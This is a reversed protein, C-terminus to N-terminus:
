GGEAPAPAGQARGGAEEAAREAPASRQVYSAAPVARLGKVLSVCIILMIVTFPLATTLVATQLATLGGAVLLVAAVAGETLAWFVRQGVPPEAHGGSTLIDIVLSGSDSSTVFFTAVVMTALVVSISSLPLRELLAFLATPLSSSVADAIGGSGFLEMHIATNGFVTLWIFTLLTPVLLVGGIFQRITRGRSIRAIFMGVFPSWSIWWGWYFLTWEKKWQISGYAGTQFTIGLLEQLYRGMGQVLSGLLFVTPGTVLVFLLLLLGFLLNMASLRRIGNDLGSVVSLTAAATIGAILLLQNTQSQSVIGLYDLGANVQQVGLGLSTAVGFLTGFVALIEVANGAAGHIREGLVPYLTSRISLPLDYRYAFFALSLGVVIYVAWAHLGWHFFTLILAQKAAAETGGEGTPPRSFHMVPEAVSYFLLGIGMGASFLMAFWNLNSFEPRNRDKGLRIRGYPSIFLWLVFILFIGVGLVYFWGLNLSIGEQLVGFFRNVPETFVTGLFLFCLIVAASVFFVYPNVKM